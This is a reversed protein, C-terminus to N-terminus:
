DVKPAVKTFRHVVKEKHPQVKKNNQGSQNWAQCTINQIKEDDSDNDQFTTYM